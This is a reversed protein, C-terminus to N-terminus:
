ASALVGRVAGLLAPGKASDDNRGVSVYVEFVKDVAQKLSEETMASLAVASLDGATPQVKGTLRTAWYMAIYFRLNTRDKASLDDRTRLYSDVAKVIDVVVRYVAIDRSEDFVQDYDDDSKLLSSPRARATDPRQLLVAMVGQALTSIGVIKEVPKGENKYFNKRRDYFYGYAKLYEEIDRQVKDTARLSAPQVATQRNTAKIVRDRSESKSPVIVRVLCHRAESSTNSEAFFEYIESSTQLGNVIQPDEVTLTKGSLVAKSAVITIGNNLWWFDEGSPKRLTHQIEENVQNKGQYDRVNSEFLAKNLKGGPEKLFKVFESLRVLCIFGVDGTASIPSEALALQYSSPASARALQLLAGAGVLDVAVEASSYMGKMSESLKEAKRTVNQHVDMGTTAYVVRFRLSPFRGALAAHADRFRRTAAIVDASYVGGLDELPRALDFLEEFSSRLKELASEGFSASRKAQIIIADLQVGRKLSAFESDERVLEGNAFVYLGDIGGDGGGGVIGDELEEYSLDFEKLLQEACFIEFFESDNMGPALQAKRQALVQDLIVQDNTSM